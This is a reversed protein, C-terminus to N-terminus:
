IAAALGGGVLREHEQIAFRDTMGAIYDLVIRALATENTADEVDKRWQKPLLETRRLFLAFLDDVVQSV